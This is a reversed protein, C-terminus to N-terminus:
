TSLAIVKVDKYHIMGDSLGMIKNQLLILINNRDEM